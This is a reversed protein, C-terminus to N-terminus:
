FSKLSHTLWRYEKARAALDAFRGLNQEGARVILVQLLQATALADALADHRAHNDIGFLGTWDDLTHARAAFEPCLAPALDALDLWANSLTIGLAERMSRAIFVRDFEVHFGVLPSKRAFTLFDLLSEVPDPASTQTTGDIGHVLINEAASPKEQRLVAYFSDDFRVLNGHSAVAGIALLHDTRPSLGSTEVDLVVLRQRDLPCSADDPRSASYRDLREAHAAELASRGRGLRRLWSM